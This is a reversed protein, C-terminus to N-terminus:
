LWQDHSLESGAEAPVGGAQRDCPGKDQPAARDPAVYQGREKADGGNNQQDDETADTFRGSDLTVPWGPQETAVLDM